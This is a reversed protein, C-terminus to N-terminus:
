GYYREFMDDLLMIHEGGFMGDDIELYSLEGTEMNVLVNYYYKYEDEAHFLYYQKGFLVYKEYSQKNLQHGAIDDPSDFRSKIYANYIEIADEATIKAQPLEIHEDKNWNDLLEITTTRVKGKSSEAYQSLLEGTQANILINHTYGTTHSEDWQYSMRYNYYKTGYLSFTPPPIEDPSDIWHHNNYSSLEPHAKLWADALAMAEYYTLLKTANSTSPSTSVGDPYTYGKGTDIVITNREGDWDVGFDFAEGIDRLKFYNNGDIFYATIQVDRGNLIIKSDTPSAEKSGGGKGAMEGGAVTYAEGGTLSIANNAGDWGVQFQKATGNLVYALDRLKFYNNDAINYADFAVNKGDVLVTSATPNATAAFVPISVSVLVVSLFLVFVM